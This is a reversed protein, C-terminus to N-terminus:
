VMAGMPYTEFLRAILPAIDSDAVGYVEGRVDAASAPGCLESKGADSLVCRISKCGGM